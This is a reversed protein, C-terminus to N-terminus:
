SGRGREWTRAGLMRSEIMKRGNRSEIETFKVVLFAM